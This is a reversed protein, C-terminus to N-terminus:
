VMLTALSSVQLLKEQSITMENGDMWYNLLLTIGGNFRGYKCINPRNIIKATM